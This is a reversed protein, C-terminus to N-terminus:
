EVDFNLVNSQVAIRNKTELVGKPGLIEEKFAEKYPYIKYDFRSAPISFKGKRKAIMKMEFIQQKIFIEQNLAAMQKGIENVNWTFKAVNFNADIYSKFGVIGVKYDVNGEDIVEFLAEPAGNKVLDAPTFKATSSFKAYEYLSIKITDQLQYRDKDAKLFLKVANSDVHQQKVVEIACPASEYDKGAIKAAIVPLDSKGLDGATFVLEYYHNTGDSEINNEIEAADLDIGTKNNKQIVRVSGQDPKGKFFIKVVSSKNLEVQPQAVIWVKEDEKKDATKRCSILIFILILSSLLIVYKNM